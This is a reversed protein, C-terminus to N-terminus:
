QSCIRGECIFLEANMREAKGCTADSLKDPLFAKGKSGANIVKMLDKEIKDMTSLSVMSDAYANLRNVHLDWYQPDQRFVKVIDRTLEEFDSSKVKQISKCSEKTQSNWLLEEALCIVVCKLGNFYYSHSLGYQRILADKFSTEFIQIHHGQNVVLSNISGETERSGLNVDVEFTAYMRVEKNKSNDKPIISKIVEYKYPQFSGVLSKGNVIVEIKKKNFKEQILMFYQLNRFPVKTKVSDWIEPDPIFLVYTNYGEPLDYCDKGKFLKKSLDNLRGASEAIKVGRSYMIVYFLDSKSRPGASDWVEKVKLISKDYNDRNIRSFVIFSESLANTAKIGLGNMGVRNVGTSVFKSGAHLKSTAVEAQTIDPIDSSMYIPLGRGNDAVLHFGNFNQHIFIKDCSSAYSEDMSNDIVERFINDPSELGGVYTSPRTRVNDPFNLLKIENENRNKVM